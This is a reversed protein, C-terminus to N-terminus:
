SLRVLHCGFQLLHQDVGAECGGMESFGFFV